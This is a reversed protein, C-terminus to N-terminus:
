NTASASLLNEDGEVRVSVQRNVKQSCIVNFGIIFKLQIKTCHVMSEQLLASLVFM